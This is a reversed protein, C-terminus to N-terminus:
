PSLAVVFEDDGRRGDVAQIGDGESREGAWVAGLLGFDQTSFSSVEVVTFSRRKVSCGFMGSM